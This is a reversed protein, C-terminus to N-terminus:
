SLQPHGIADGRHLAGSVDRLRSVGVEGFGSHRQDPVAGGAEDYVDAGRQVPEAAVSRYHIRKDATISDFVRENELHM